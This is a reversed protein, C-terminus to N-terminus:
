VSASMCKSVPVGCVCLCLCVRVSVPVGGRMSCSGSHSHLLRALQVRDGDHVCVCVCGCVRVSVTVGGRM